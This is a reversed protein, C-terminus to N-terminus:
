SSRMRALMGREAPIKVQPRRVGAAGGAAYRVGNYARQNEVPRQNEQALEMGRGDAPYRQGWEAPERDYFESPLRWNVSPRRRREVMARPNVPPGLTQSPALDGFDPRPAYLSNPRMGHRPGAPRPAAPPPGLLPQPPANLLRPDEAFQQHYFRPNPTWTSPYGFDQNETYQPM